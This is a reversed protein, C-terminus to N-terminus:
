PRLRQQIDGFIEGIARRQAGTLPFPLGSEYRPSLDHPISLAAGPGSALKRASALRRHIYLLEEFAFRHRAEEMRAMSTPFHIERLAHPLPMLHANQRIAFTDPDIAKDAWFRVVERRNKRLWNAKVGETLRIFPICMRRTSCANLEKTLPEYEPSKFLLKNIDRDVKGSVVVFQRPRM